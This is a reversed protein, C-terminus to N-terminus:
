PRSRSSSTRTPGFDSAFVVFMAPATVAEYRKAFRAYTREFRFDADVVRGVRGDRRAPWARVSPVRAGIAM